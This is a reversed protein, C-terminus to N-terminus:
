VENLWVLLSHGRMELSIVTLDKSKLNQIADYEHDHNILLTLTIMMYMMITWQCHRRLLQLSQSAAAAM